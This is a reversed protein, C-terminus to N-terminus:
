LPKTLEELKSLYALAEERTAGCMEKSANLSGCVAPRESKGFIDCRFDDTLHPCPVGAAKGKPM